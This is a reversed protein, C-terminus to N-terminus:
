EPQAASLADLIRLATAEAEAFARDGDARDVWGGRDINAYLSLPYGLHPQAIELVFKDATERPSYVYGDGPHRIVALYVIRGAPHDRFTRPDRPM